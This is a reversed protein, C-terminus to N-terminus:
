DTWRKEKCSVQFFGAIEEDIQEVLQDQVGVRPQLTRITRSRVRGDEQLVVGGVDDRVDAAYLVDDHWGDTGSEKKRM